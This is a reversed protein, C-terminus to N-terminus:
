FLTNAIKTNLNLKVKASQSNILKFKNSNINLYARSKGTNKLIIEELDLITSTSIEANDLTEIFKLESTYIVKINLKKKSTIKKTTFFKLTSDSVNYKIIEHLNEDAEIFVSAQNGKILEINFKEGIILRNFTNINTTKIKVSKNGRIKEKNQSFVNYALFVLCLTFLITKQMSLSKSVWIYTFVM